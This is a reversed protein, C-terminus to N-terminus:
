EIGKLHKAEFYLKAYNKRFPSANSLRICYLDLMDGPINVLIKVKNKYDSTGKKFVSPTLGINSDLSVFHCLIQNSYLQLFYRINNLYVNLRFITDTGIRYYGVANVKSHLTFLHERRKDNQRVIELFHQYNRKRTIRQFPLM